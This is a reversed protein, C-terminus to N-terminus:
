EISKAQIERTHILRVSTYCTDQMWVNWVLRSFAHTWYTVVAYLVSQSVGGADDPGFDVERQPRIHSVIKKWAELNM